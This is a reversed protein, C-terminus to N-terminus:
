IDITKNIDDATDQARKENPYGYANVMCPIGNVDCQTVSHTHGCIWAVIPNKILHDLDTAFWSTSQIGRVKYKMEILKFTPVFHTLMLVRMKNNKNHHITQTIWDVHSNHEIINNLYNSVKTNYETSCELIPKSWLTCGAVFTNDDLKHANKNLYYVNKFSSCINKVIPEYKEVNKKSYMPGLDFDHNGPVFFVKEFKNSQQKLFENFFAHSPNGLDGCIALYKSLPKLSPIFKQTDVHLDSIYQITIKPKILKLM